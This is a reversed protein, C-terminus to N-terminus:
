EEDDEDPDPRAKWYTELNSSIGPDIEHAFKKRVSGDLFVVNLRNGIHRAISYTGDDEIYDAWNDAEPGEADVLPKVYDVLLIRNPSRKAVIMKDLSANMGYNSGGANPLEYTTGINYKLDWGVVDLKSDIIHFHYGASSSLPKILVAGPVFRVEVVMDNYDWDTADEIELVFGDELTTRIRSRPGPALPITRFIVIPDRRRQDVAISYSTTKASAATAEPCVLIDSGSQLSKQLVSTWEPVSFVPGDLFAAEAALDTAAMHIQHLNSACEATHASRKGRSLAPMLMAMLLAIIVIVALMEVLTFRRKLFRTKM